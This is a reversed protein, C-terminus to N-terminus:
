GRRLRQFRVQDPPCVHDDQVDAVVLAVFNNLRWLPLRSFEEVFHRAAAITGYTHSGALIVLQRQPAFPNPTQVILGYDRTVTDGEVEGQYDVGDWHIVTDTMSVPIDSGLKDLVQRTIRNNKTGGLCILDEERSERMTESALTIRTVDIENYARSLSPLILALARVQGIGTAPRLYEGTHVTGSAAVCIVVDDPKGLHWLRRHPLIRTARGVLWTAVVAFAFSAVAGLAIQM